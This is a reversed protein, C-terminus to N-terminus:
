ARPDIRVLTLGRAPATMGADARAAGPELLKAVDDPGLRERGVEILTGALIRVMQKMFADGYIEFALLEPNGGYGPLLSASTITRVTNDRADDASRFAGFDHTGVLRAAAREMADLDLWDRLAPRVRDGPRALKRDVHWAYRRVLPDAADAIQFLYRYLKGRTEFRPEYGEPAFAVERVRVDPPLSTNLGRLWGQADIERSTDFAARQGLAHVGADTRSAGRLEVPAGAMSEIATAVTAQVTRTNPQQQWGSFDTGDYALTLVVARM